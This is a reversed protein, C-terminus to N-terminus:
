IQVGLQILFGNKIESTSFEPLWNYYLQFRGLELFTFGVYPLLSWGSCVMNDLRVGAQSCRSSSFDDGKSIQYGFKFGILWQWEYTSMPLELELGVNPTFAFINPQESIYNQYGQFMLSVNTKVYTPHMFEISSFNWGLEMASGFTLYYQQPKPVYYLEENLLTRGAKKMILQESGPLSDMYDASIGGLKSRLAFLGRGAQDKKLGLDKFHFNLEDYLRFIYGLKNEDEERKWGKFSAFAPDIVPPAEGALSKKCYKEGAKTDKLKLCKNYARYISTQLLVLFNHSVQDKNSDCIRKSEIDENLISKICFYPVWDKNTKQAPYDIHGPDKQAKVFRYADVMGLYFDFERFDQEFFGIFAGLPSSAPPLGVSTNIIKKTIKPEWESLLSLDRTRSTGIFNNAFKAGYQLLSDYRKEETKIDEGYVYHHPNLWVFVDSPKVGLEKGILYSLYVPANNFVGGDIFYDERIKKGSCKFYKNEPRKLCHRLKVPPFALPFAVSSLILDQLIDYDKEGNGTFPMLVQRRHNQKFIFNSIKPSKGKGRGTIRVVAVEEMIPVSINKNVTARSPNFRTISIGLITECNKRFGNMWKKKLKPLIELGEKLTFIQDARVNEKQYIKDVSLPIWTKWYLSEKPNLSFKEGCKSYVSLLSNVAGASAGTLHTLEPAKKNIDLLSKLYFLFGSEYIGLSAGGSITYFIKKGGYSQSIPILFLIFIFFIKKLNM